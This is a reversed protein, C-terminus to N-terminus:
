TLRWCRAGRITLRMLKRRADVGAPGQEILGEKELVAQWRLGTSSAADAALSLSTVTIMEGRAPLCYLALLMDWAPEGFLDRNLMKNRSRRADYIQCALRCLEKRTPEKPRKRRLELAEVKAVEDLNLRLNIQLNYDDTQPDASAYSGDVPRDFHQERSV